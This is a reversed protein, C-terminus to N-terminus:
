KRYNIKKIVQGNHLKIENKLRVQTPQQPNVVLEQTVKNYLYSRWEHICWKGGRYLFISYSNSGGKGLGPNSGNLRLIDHYRMLSINTRAVLRQCFARSKNSKPTRVPVYKYLKIIDSAMDLKSFEINYDEETLEYQYKTDDLQELTLGLEELRIGFSEDDELTKIFDEKGEM